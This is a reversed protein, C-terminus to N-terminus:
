PRRGGGAAERRMGRADATEDITPGPAEPPEVVGVREEYALKGGLWGAGALLLFGATSLGAAMWWRSTLVGAGSQRLVASAGYLGVALVAAIAHWTALGQARRGMEVRLYDVAGAAAAFLAFTVGFGIAVTSFRYWFPDRTSAHAIDGVLVLSFAGIPLPVLMPHIPHNGIAAKSKM